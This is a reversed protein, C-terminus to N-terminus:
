RERQPVALSAGRWEQGPQEVLQRRQALDHVTWMEAAPREVVVARHESEDLAIADPQTGVRCSAEFELPPAHDGERGIRPHLEAGEVLHWGIHEGTTIM